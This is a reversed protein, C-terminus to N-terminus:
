NWKKQLLVSMNTNNIYSVYLVLYTVNTKYSKFFDGLDLSPQWQPRYPALSTFCCSNKLVIFQFLSSAPTSSGGNMGSTHKILKIM